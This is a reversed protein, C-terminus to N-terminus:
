ERQAVALLPRLALPRPVLTHAAGTRLLRVRRCGAPKHFSRSVPGQIEVQIEM